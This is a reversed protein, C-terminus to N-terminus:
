AKAEISSEGNLRRPVPWVHLTVYFRAAAGERTSSQHKAEARAQQRGSSGDSLFGLFGSTV